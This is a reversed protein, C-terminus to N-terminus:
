GRFRNEEWVDLQTLDVGELMACLVMSHGFSHEPDNLAAEYAQERPLAPHLNYLNRGDFDFLKIGLGKEHSQEYLEVLRDWAQTKLVAQQYLPIYVDKRAQIYSLREGKWYMYEPRFGKGTVPDKGLPYRLTAKDIALYEAFTTDWGTKAWDWWRVSPSGDPDLHQKYAKSRQWAGEVTQSVLGDYLEVPGLLMPSLERGFDTVKARSTTNVMTWSSPPLGEESKRGSKKSYARVFAMARDTNIEEVTVVM